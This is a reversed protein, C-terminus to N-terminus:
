KNMYLILPEPSLKNAQHQKKKKTRRHHFEKKNM